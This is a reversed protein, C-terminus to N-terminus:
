WELSRLQLIFPVILHLQSFPQQIIRVFHLLLNKKVSWNFHDSINFKSIGEIQFKFFEVMWTVLIIRVGLPLNEDKLIEALILQNSFDFTNSISIFAYFYMKRTIHKIKEKM